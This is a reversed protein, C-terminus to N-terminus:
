LYLRTIDAIHDIVVTLTRAPAGNRHEARARRTIKIKQEVDKTTEVMILRGEKQLQLDIAGTQGRFISYVPVGLAAAERNMTGGGSVVLDSHWLLNLGDLAVPPIITCDREFWHPWNRRIAEGQRTNRPLLVIRVGQQRCAREMFHEFLKEGEPNHYHAETAPPRVTILLDEPSVGLMKLFQPDVRMRNVYVDEKIGPYKRIRNRRCYLAADPIVEPVMEWAPRMLPPYQAFEYDAMLLTPVRFLNSIIIQSRAGHSLALDPKERLVFPALELARYFLGLVKHLKNRGHHRGIKTYRLGKRDALECVQFADRATLVVDFGRKSLEEIIPEFFPVHPTNDLDIWIKQRRAPPQAPVSIAGTSKPALQAGAFQAVDRPLAQWYRGAYQQKVYTLFETYLKVPYSAGPQGTGNLDIYDPHVDLMAMGGHQAIWDLKRKWIGNDREQFLLFLTFDQPLTYPLEVYGRYPHNGNRTGPEANSPEPNRAELKRAVGNLFPNPRPSPIWYPFITQAGDPQPEFPDTDFTSSDYLVDLDRLWELNHLMFGSRFGVADWNKLHQNIRRAKAAFDARSSYLKGDHQLDHIGVEFGNSLLWERLELPVRYDGEPIFNFASRVGLKMEVEALERVRDMGAQSEVDHTLVLAFQRGEPWGPWGPPPQESGPLIPWVSSVQRRKRSAFWRRIQLRIRSPLVPKVHYYLRNRFM